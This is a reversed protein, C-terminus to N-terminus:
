RQSVVRRPRADRPHQQVQIFKDGLFLVHVRQQILRLQKFVAALKKPAAAIPEARRRETRQQHRSQQLVLRLRIVADASQGPQRM